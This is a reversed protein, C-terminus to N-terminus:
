TLAGGTLFARLSCGRWNGRPSSKSRKQDLKGIASVIQPLTAREEQKIRLAKQYDDRLSGKGYLLLVGYFEGTSHKTAGSIMAPRDLFRLLVPLPL